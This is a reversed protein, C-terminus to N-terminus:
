LALLAHAQAHLITMQKGAIDESSEAQEQDCYSLLLEAVARHETVQHETDRHQDQSGM